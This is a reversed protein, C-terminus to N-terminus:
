QPDRAPPQYDTAPPLTGEAAVSRADGPTAPIRLPSRDDIQTPRQCQGGEFQESVEIVLLGERLMVRDRDYEALRENGDDM